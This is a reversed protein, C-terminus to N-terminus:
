RHLALLLGLRLAATAAVAYALLRSARRPARDTEPLQEDEDEPNRPGSREALAIPVALRLAGARWFLAVLLAAFGLVWAMQTAPEM